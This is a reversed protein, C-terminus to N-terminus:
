QSSLYTLILPFPLPICSLFCNFTTLPLLLFPPNPAFLCSVSFPFANTSHGLHLVLPACSLKKKEPHM